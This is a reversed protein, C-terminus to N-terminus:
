PAKPKALISKEWGSNLVMLYAGKLNIHDIMLGDRIKKLRRTNEDGKPSIKYCIKLNSDCELLKVVVEKYDRKSKGLEEARRFDRRFESSPGDVIGTPMFYNYERNVFGVNTRNAKRKMSKNISEQLVGNTLIDNVLREHAKKKVMYNQHYQAYERLRFNSIGLPNSYGGKLSFNCGGNITTTDLITFLM